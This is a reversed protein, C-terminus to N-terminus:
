EEKMEPILSRFVHLLVLMTSICLDRVLFFDDMDCRLDAM